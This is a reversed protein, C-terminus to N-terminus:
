SHCEVLELRLVELDTKARPSKPKKIELEDYWEGPGNPTDVDKGQHRKWNGNAWAAIARQAGIASFFIRPVEGTHDHRLPEWWTYGGRDMRPMCLKTAKHQVVFVETITTM